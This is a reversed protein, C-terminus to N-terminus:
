DISEGELLRMMTKMQMLVGVKICEEDVMFDENHISATWGKERNGSGLYYYAGKLKELFFAFDDAGMSPLEKIKVNDKGLTDEGIEKLLKVVGDDNILSPYGEEFDVTGRAGHAKATSEVIEKIRNKTYIRTEPTLTRLTGSIIVEGTIINNKTGGNIRGLTLVVSELPSINRSVLSQLATIIYGAVVISDVTSEPYAAHGSKGDIKIYFENTAANTKGYKLEIEGVDLHPTVHLALIYDVDPDKLYGEQIMRNAGGVTEEAPQFFIKINGELEEEMEKFIKAVGLHIATHIDHGCAHMVGENVSKFPLDNSEEIPLADIDARAGITKGEKKGRIIAVVGTEAVGKVHEINWKELYECIKNCTRYENESIEPYMHLDRRIEILEPFIEDIRKEIDM